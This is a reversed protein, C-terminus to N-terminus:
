QALEVDMWKGSYIYGFLKEKEAIVPLLEKEFSSPIKSVYHFVDPECIAVGANVLNSQTDSRPKETFSVIKSGTLKAVGFVNPTKVNVLALTCLSSPNEKHFKLLDILDLDPYLVDSYSLIFPENVKSKCLSLAGASGSSAEDFIYEITLGFEKGDKLKAVIQEGGYGVVVIVRKVGSETFKKVIHEIVTRGDIEVLPKIANHKESWLREKKGAALIIATRVTNQSAAAKLLVDIAHSRSKAKGNVVMADVFKLLEGDITITVRDM